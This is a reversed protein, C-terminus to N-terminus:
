NKYSILHIRHIKTLFATVATFATFSIIRRMEGCKKLFILRLIWRLEELFEGYRCKHYIIYSIYIYSFQHFLYSEAIWRMWRM